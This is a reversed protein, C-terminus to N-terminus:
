NSVTGRMSTQIREARQLNQELTSIRGDAWIRFDGDATATSHQRLMDISARNSRVAWDIYASDFRAGQLAALRDYEQQNMTGLATPLSINRRQALSSLDTSATTYYDSMAVGYDKVDQMAANTQVLMGTRTGMLNSEAASLAFERDVEALMNDDDDKRCSVAVFLTAILLLNWKLTRM